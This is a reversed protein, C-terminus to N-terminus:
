QEVVIKQFLHLCIMTEFHGNTEFSPTTSDAELNHERRHGSSYVKAFRDVVENDPGNVFAVGVVFGARLLGLTRPLKVVKEIRLITSVEGARNCQNPRNM